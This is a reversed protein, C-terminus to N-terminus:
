DDLNDYDETEDLSDELEENRLTKIEISTATEPSLEDSLDDDYEDDYEDDHDSDKIGDDDDYLEDENSDYDDETEDYHDNEDNFESHILQFSLESEEIIESNEM